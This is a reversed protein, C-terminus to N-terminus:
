NRKMHLLLHDQVFLVLDNDSPCNEEITLGKDLEVTVKAGPIKYKKIETM